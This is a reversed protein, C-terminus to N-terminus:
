IPTEIMELCLINRLQGIYTVDIFRNITKALNLVAM